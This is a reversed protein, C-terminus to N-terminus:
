HRVVLVPCPARLVVAHSVSGLLMRAVGHLGRSGVVVLRADRAVDLLARAPSGEVLRARVDLTPIEGEVARVSEDLVARAQEAATDDYGGAVYGMEVYIAQQEWAHVVVLQDGTRRAEHAAVRVAAAAHDSGDTGVVVGASAPGPVAPVVAVACDAGAAVQYARSGLVREAVRLHHTGVVLLQAETSARTLATGARERAVETTVRLDPEALRAAAEAAELLAGAEKEVVEESRAGGSAPGVAHLLVLPADREAAAQAGWTVAADSSGTASVGVVVPLRDVASM